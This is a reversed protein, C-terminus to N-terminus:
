ASSPPVGGTLMVRWNRSYAAATRAAATKNKRCRGRGGSLVAHVNGFAEPGAVGARKVVQDRRVGETDQEACWLVRGIGAVDREKQVAVGARLSGEDRMQGLVIRLRLQEVGGLFHKGDKLSRM